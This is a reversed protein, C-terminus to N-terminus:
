GIVQKILRYANGGIIKTIEEDTYGRQILGSVINPWKSIYEIGKTYPPWRINLLDPFKFIAHAPWWESEWVKRNAEKPDSDPRDTGIGVHDVGLLRVLYDVHDLMDKLTAQGKKKLWFSVAYVNVVGDKKALAILEEDLKNRPNECLSWAATHSFVIPFRSADIAELTTRHGCHSLDVIMGLQNMKEILDIGFATLGGNARELCGDGVQNRDNYTLQILRIGLGYYIEVHGLDDGIPLANQLGM